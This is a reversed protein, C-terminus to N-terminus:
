GQARRTGRAPLWLLADGPWRGAPATLADLAVQSSVPFAAEFTSRHVGALARHHRTGPVALVVHVARGPLASAVAGRKDHCERIIEELSRIRSEIEILVVDPGSDIRLDTSRRGPGPVPSEITAAWRKHRLRLLAEVLRAQAADVIVPAAAPYCAMAFEAGLVVAVRARTRLGVAPDGAELRSIVSRDVGVARGVAAQSAGCRLRLHLAAEGFRGAARRLQRDAERIALRSLGTRNRSAM